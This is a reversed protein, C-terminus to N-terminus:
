TMDFSAGKFQEILDRSSCVRYDDSNGEPIRRPYMKGWWEVGRNCMVQVRKQDKQSNTTHKSRLSGRREGARVPMQGM